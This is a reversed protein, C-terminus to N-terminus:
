SSEVHVAGGLTLRVECGQRAVVRGVDRLAAAPVHVGAAVAAASTSSATSGESKAVGWRTRRKVLVGGAGAGAAAGAASAVLPNNFVDSNNNLLVDQYIKALVITIEEPYAVGQPLHRTRVLFASAEGERMTELALEVGKCCLGSGLTYREFAADQQVYGPGPCNKAVKRCV